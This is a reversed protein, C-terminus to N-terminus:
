LATGRGFWELNLSCFLAMSSWKAEGKSHSWPPSPSAHGGELNEARGGRAVGAVWQKLGKAPRAPDRSCGVLPRCDLFPLAEKKSIYVATWFAELVRSLVCQLQVLAAHCPKTQFQNTNCFTAVSFLVATNMVLLPM